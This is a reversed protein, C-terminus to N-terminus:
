KRPTRQGTEQQARALYKRHLALVQPGIATEADVEDGNDIVDTAVALRQWRTAQRALITRAQKEDANDRQQLRAIQLAPPADVVLVYHCARHAGTEVLLPVVRLAYAHGQAAWERMREDIRARILPHLITELRQRAMDDDFIRRRLTGRDLRGDPTLVEEGFAEIVQDLGASGPEVVERAVLDSDAIPVGLAQFREAVLSKGAAIGGTLCIELM